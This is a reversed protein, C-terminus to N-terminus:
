LLVDNQCKEIFLEYMALRRYVKNLDEMSIILGIILTASVILLVPFCIGFIVKADTIDFLSVVAIMFDLMVNWLNLLVTITLCRMLWAAVSNKAEYDCKTKIYEFHLECDNLQKIKDINQKFLDAERHRREPCSFSAICYRFKRGIFAKSM